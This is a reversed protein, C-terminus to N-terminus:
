NLLLYFYRMIKGQEENNLISFFHVDVKEVAPLALSLRKKGEETLVPNKSREDLWQKRKILHKHELGRIVQSLTNPDLGAARAIEIQTTHKNDQTLWATAALVVFQPHTLGYEKLANEILGRWALSVRWLLYGPSKDPTKFLSLSDFDVM